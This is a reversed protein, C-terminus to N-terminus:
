KSLIVLTMQNEIVDRTIEDFRGGLSDLDKEFIGTFFSTDYILDYRIIHNKDINDCLIDYYVHYKRVIEDYRIYIIKPLNISENDKYFCIDHDLKFFTKYIKFMDNLINYEKMYNRLDLYTQFTKKKFKTYDTKPLDINEGIRLDPDIISFILNAELKKKKSSQMFTEIDM